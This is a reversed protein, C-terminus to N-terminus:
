TGRRPGDEESSRFHLCVYVYCYRELTFITQRRKINTGDGEVDLSKWQPDPQGESLSSLSCDPTLRQLVDERRVLLVSESCLRQHVEEESGLIPCIGLM